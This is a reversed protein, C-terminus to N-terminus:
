FPLQSESCNPFKRPLVARLHSSKFSAKASWNLVGEQEPSRTHESDILALKKETIASPPPPLGPGQGWPTDAHQRTFCLSRMQAQQSGM